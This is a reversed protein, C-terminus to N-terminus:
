SRHFFAFYLSAFGFIAAIVAMTAAFRYRRTYPWAQMKRFFSFIGASFVLFTVVGIVSTSLQRAFSLHIGLRPEVTFPFAFLLLACVAAFIWHYKSPKPYPKTAMLEEIRRRKWFFLIPLAVVGVSVVICFVRAFIELGSMWANM